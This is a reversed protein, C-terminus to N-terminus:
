RKFKFYAITIGGIILFVIFPYNKKKGTNRLIKSNTKTGLVSNKEPTTSKEQSTPFLTFSITPTLTPQPTPTPTPTSTPNPSTYSNVEKDTTGNGDEDVYMIPNQGSSTNFTLEAKTSTTLPVDNYLIEQSANENEFKRVRFDFSGQGTAAFKINYSGNDLIFIFAADDLTTYSSGPINEEFNGDSIPGTRNGSSDYISMDVPSHKSFLWGSSLSYPKKSVGDPLDENEELINKILNLASGSAVLSGHDQNTYFVKDDEGTKGYDVLSASFLPVTGDGNINVMDKHIYPIGLLSIRKEEIIQGLTNRGSGAILTVDVGNTDSLKEDLSHFAESYNFLSANHGYNQLTVKMQSYNLGGSNTKYPYPHRGDQNSYFNFYSQSPILQFVSIMNKVIDNVESPILGFCIDFDALKSLIGQKTLCGGYRLNRLADVSGLHPTGLTFLKRVNSAKSADAIYNRAVLGGMSHAVIDVKSSDAQSKIQQIAEDLFNKTGSVDKRWDYPFVFLDQNLRYGSSTFFDITGQYTHSLLNGTIGLNVESTIGDTKMRLVDFYDDAGFAAAEDVNLWVKENEPYLYSFKGGHGSDEDWVKMENVKLESGGIGPILILPTKPTPTPAPTLTPTPIPTSTPTPTFTPTPTSTPTPTPTIPLDYDFAIELNDINASWSQSSSYNIRLIFNNNDFNSSSLCSSSVAQSGGNQIVSTVFTQTNIVSSNLQWLTWLDSPFQCNATYTQGQSLGVYLSAIAKGTARVRIKTIAADSPIEFDSYNGFDRFYLNGYSSGSTRDCTNGDTLSCNNLNTYATAGDTTVISASRFSPAAAFVPPLFLFYALFLFLFIFSRALLRM